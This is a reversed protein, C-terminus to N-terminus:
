GLRPGDERLETWLLISKSCTKSPSFTVNGTSHPLSPWLTVRCGEGNEELIAGSHEGSERM